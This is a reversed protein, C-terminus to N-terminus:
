RQAAPTRVHEDFFALMRLWGDAAASADPGVAMPTPLRALWGQWGEHESFVKKTASRHEALGTASRQVESRRTGRIRGYDNARPGVSM